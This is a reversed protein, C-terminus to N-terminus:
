EQEGLGLDPDCQMRSWGTYNEVEPVKNPINQWKPDHAGIDWHDPGAVANWSIYEKGWSQGANGHKLQDSKIKGRSNTWTYNIGEGGPQLRPDDFPKSSIYLDGSKTLIFAQDNIVTYSAIDERSPHSDGYQDAGGGPMFRTSQWTQGYDKSILFGSLDDWPISIYRESPHVYSFLSVRFIPNDRKVVEYRINRQIDSYWLAGECHFGELELFRHDDFRYVVQIPTKKEDSSTALKYCGAILLFIVIGSWVADKSM